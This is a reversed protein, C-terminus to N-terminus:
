CRCVLEHRFEKFLPDHPDVVRVYDSWLPAGGSDIFSALNPLVVHQAVNWEVPQSAAYHLTIDSAGGNMAHQQINEELVRMAWERISARLQEDTLGGWDFQFVTAEGVILQERTTERYAPESWRQWDIDVGTLGHFKDADFFARVDVEPLRAQFWLDYVVSLAGGTGRLAREALATAEPTMEFAFSAAHNGILAPTADGIASTQLADGCLVSSAAKTYPPAVFMVGPVPSIGRRNAEQQVQATLMDVAAHLAADDFVFEVDLVLLGGAAVGNSRTVPTVYKYLAVAPTGDVNRRYRLDHPLPYFVNFSDHDPYVTVTRGNVTLSQIKDIQVM